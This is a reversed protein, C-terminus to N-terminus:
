RRVRKLCIKKAIAGIACATSETTPTIQFEFRANSFFRRRCAVRGKATCQLM